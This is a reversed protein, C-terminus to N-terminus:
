EAEGRYRTRESGDGCGCVEGSYETPEGVCQIPECYEPTACSFALLIAALIPKM